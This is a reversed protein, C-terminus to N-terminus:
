KGRGRMYGRKYADYEGQTRTGYDYGKNAGGIGGSRLRQLLGFPSVSDVAKGVAGFAEGARRVVGDFKVAKRDFDATDKDLDAGAKVAPMKFRKAKNDLRIGESEYGARDAISQSMESSAHAAIEQAENLRIRSDTENLERKVRLAELATGIGKEIGKGPSISDVSAVPSTASVGMPSSAGGQSFALMPNIGAASMDKVARQYATSSMREQFEMQTKAQSANFERAERALQINTANASDQAGSDFIGGLLGGIGAALLDLM